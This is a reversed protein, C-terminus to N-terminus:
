QDAEREPRKVDASPSEPVWHIHSCYSYLFCVFFPLLSTSLKYQPYAENFRQRITLQVSQSNDHNSATERSLYRSVEIENNIMDYIFLGCILSFM